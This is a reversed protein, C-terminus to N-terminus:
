GWSRASSRALLASDTNPFTRAICPLQFAHTWSRLADASASDRKVIIQCDVVAMLCGLCRALSVVHRLQYEPPLIETLEGRYLQPIMRRGKERHWRVRGLRAREAYAKRRATQRFMALVLPRRYRCATAYQICKCALSCVPLGLWAKGKGAAM